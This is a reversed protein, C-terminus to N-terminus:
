SNNKLLILSFLSMLLNVRLLSSFLIWFKSTLLLCFWLFFNSLGQSFYLIIPFYHGWLWSFFPTQSVFSHNSIQHQALHSSYQFKANSKAITLDKCEQCSCNWCLKAPSLKILTSAFHSSPFSLAFQSGKSPLISCLLSCIRFHLRWPPISNTTKTNLIHCRITHGYLLLSQVTSLSFQSHLIYFSSNNRSCVSWPVPM